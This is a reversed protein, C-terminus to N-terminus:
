YIQNQVLINFFVVDLVQLFIQLFFFNWCYLYAHTLPIYSDLLNIIITAVAM